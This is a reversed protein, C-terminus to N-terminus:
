RSIRYRSEKDRATITAYNSLLDNFERTTIYVNPSFEYQNDILLGIKKAKYMPELAYSSITGVDLFDLLRDKQELEIEGIDKNYTRILITYAQERTINAKPKYLGDPYGLIIGNINATYIYKYNPSNINVDTFIIELSDRIVIGSTKMLDEVFKERTIYAYAAQETSSDKTTFINEYDIYKYHSKRGNEFSIQKDFQLSTKIKVKYTTGFNYEEMPLLVISNTLNRDQISTVVKIKVYENKRTDFLSAEINGFDLIKAESSYISYTIPIGVVEPKNSVRNYPDLIYKNNFATDVNKQNDYPYAVEINSNRGSGGFLYTTLNDYTAMGLDTYLPDLIGYRSYPNQMLQNLGSTFTTIDQNLVEYIYSNTYGNYSARDWPYRGRYYLKGSEEVSSYTNNFDMYRTHTTATKNLVDSYSLLPLEYIDRLKNITEITRVVEDDNDSKADIILNTSFLSIILILLMSRKFFNKM